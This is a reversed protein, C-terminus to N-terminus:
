RGIRLKVAQGDRIARAYETLEADTGASADFEALARRLVPKIEKVPRGKCQVGIVDIAAQMQKVVKKLEAASEKRLESEDIAFGSM